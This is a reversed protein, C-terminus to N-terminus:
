SINYVHLVSNLYKWSYKTTPAPSVPSTKGSSAPVIHDVIHDLTFMVKDIDESAPFSVECLGGQGGYFPSSSLEWTEKDSDEQENM